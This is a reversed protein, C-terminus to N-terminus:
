KHRDLDLLSQNIHEVLQEPEVLRGRFDAIANDAIIHVVELITEKPTIGPVVSDAYTPIDLIAPCTRLLLQLKHPNNTLDKSIKSCTEEAIKNCDSYDLNDAGVSKIRQAFLSIALKKIYETEQM